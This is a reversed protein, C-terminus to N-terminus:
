YRDIRFPRMDVPPKIGSVMDGILRATTPAYTLGLHGHGTAYFVGPMKSSPSIIPITDPLAPRHGMWDTAEELKLGPLARQAHRVLVRPRRFDPAADLGALEVNGGVRIGGATPTVMFARAPWIMSYRMSIGPKMIQTHYGRETELPIPEGLKEALFRTHVGAALVVSDAELRGGDELLVVVAGDGKREINRVAGSVFATGAAKAAEALKVVLRYPDRISKNDPLLVAKAIAPSLAPEYYQIAGNSLVEFELGYRQMMALHGRDAAFEAETEYIALCGEETMLESAAIAQLMQRFDGLARESLSMGADEIQRLRSPRGAALFRLFWPLMKAAYSPRLWVPGEPDLLWRPMKKWTSPGSGAAFDLAISAMNGFSTGRGPEGKDVLTVQHGRRQLDFATSAGIVGAGVVVVRKKTEEAM